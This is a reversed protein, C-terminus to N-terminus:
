FASARLIIKLGLDVMFRSVLGVKVHMTIYSCYLLIPLNISNGESVHATKLMHVSFTCHQAQLMCLKLIVDQSPLGHLSGVALPAM